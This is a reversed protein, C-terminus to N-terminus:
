SIRHLMGRRIRFREGRWTVEDGAFSWAWFLLGCCDRLPLLFLDRLVQGDRLLGVGASLAVAVRLLLTLSLLSLSWLAFGSAIMTALAWPLAYTIVLGLYGLRRADRVTRAWRMQHQVFGRLTYRPVTTAVVQPSLFVRMGATHVRAGLEYDDALHELLPAFGGIHELTERRLALTSGLGFHVGGELMRSTLVGPFFDTSIGLGELRSWIGGREVVQGRYPMTVLGTAPDGLTAAIGQLYQPGVRIDADNIVIVAGLAHPLMQALTSVKGNTGLREPCPIVRVPVEPFEARLRAAMEELPEIADAAGLLLEYRGSYQQKCHSAFSGYLDPDSGKVPKLVSITPAAGAIVPAPQRAFSRVALLALLLYVMGAVTLLATILEVLIALVAM